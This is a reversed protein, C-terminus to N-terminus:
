LDDWESANLNEREQEAKKLKESFRALCRRKDIVEGQYRRLTAEYGKWQIPMLFGDPQTLVDSGMYLEIGAASGNVDM